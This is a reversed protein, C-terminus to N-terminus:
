RRELEGEVRGEGISTQYRENFRVGGAVPTLTISTRAICSESGEETYAYRGAEVEELRGSCSTTSREGEIYERHSGSLGDGAIKTNVIVTQTTGRPTYQTAVGTWDGALPSDRPEGKAASDPPENQAPPATRGGEDGTNTVVTTVQTVSQAPQPPGQETGDGGGSLALAGVAGILAVALAAIAVITPGVRARARKEEGREGPLVVTPRQRRDEPPSTVPAAEGAAVSRELPTRAGDGAAQQAARGLDGASLYRRRPEKAMARRIVDDFASPLEPREPTVLPPPEHAHAYMVAPATDRRFPVHGTLAHFLTCALSYVDSRADLRRGEIQEPSMYHPTGVVQGTQTFGASGAILKTLGFDTLYAVEGGSPGPGLLVNAPKIDRHVFGAAHAADLADAVGGILAAARHCGLPGEEEILAGLDTGEVFRMALYLLGDPTEGADFVPVVNPHDISAAVRSEEDFRARFSVDRSWEPALVKLAVTRGLRLHTARYVVGMGGRGVRQELRYGPVEPLGNAGAAARAEGDGAM